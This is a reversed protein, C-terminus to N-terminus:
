IVYDVSVYLYRVLSFALELMAKHWEYVGNHLNPCCQGYNIFFFFFHKYQNVIAHCKQVQVHVLLLFVNECYEVDVGYMSSNM